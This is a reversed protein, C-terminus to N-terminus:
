PVMRYGSARGVYRGMLPASIGIGELIAATGAGTKLWYKKHKVYKLYIYVWGNSM